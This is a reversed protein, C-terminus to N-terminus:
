VDACHRCYCAESEYTELYVTENVGIYRGCNSCKKNDEYLERAAEGSISMFGEVSVKKFEGGSIALEKWNINCSKISSLEIEELHLNDIKLEYIVERRKVRGFVCETNTDFEEVWELTSKYRIYGNDELFKIEEMDITGSELM